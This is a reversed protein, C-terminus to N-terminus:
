NGRGGEGNHATQRDEQTGSAERIAERTLISSADDMHDVHRM